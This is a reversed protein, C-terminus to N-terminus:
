KSKGIRKKQRTAVDETHSTHNPSTGWVRRFVTALDSNPDGLKLFRLSRGAGPHFRAHWRFSGQFWTGNKKQDFSDYLLPSPMMTMMAKPCTTLLTSDMWRLQVWQWCWLLRCLLLASYAPNGFLWWCIQLVILYWLSCTKGNRTSYSMFGPLEVHGRVYWVEPTYKSKSGDSSNLKRRFATNLDLIGIGNSLIM